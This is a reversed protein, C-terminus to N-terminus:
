EPHVNTIEGTQRNLYVRFKIGAWEASYQDMKAHKAKLYGKAAAHIAMDLMQEDTFKAPDYVTKPNSAPTKYMINGAADQMIKGSGDKKPIGYTIRTIGDIGTPQESLIIGDKDLLAKEFNKRNHGGTIGNKQNFRVVNKLHAPLNKDYSIGSPFLNNGQFANNVTTANNNINNGAAANKNGYSPANGTIGPVQLTKTDLAGVSKDPLSAKNWEVGEIRWTTNASNPHSFSGTGSPAKNNIAALNVYNNAIAPSKDTKTKEILPIEKAGTRVFASAGAALSSGIQEPDNNRVGYYIGKGGEYLRVMPVVMLVNDGARDMLEETGAGEQAARGMMSWNTSMFDTGFGWNVTAGLTDLAEAPIEWLGQAIGKGAGVVINGTFEMSQRMPDYCGACRAVDDAAKQGALLAAQTDGTEALVEKFKYEFAGAQNKMSEPNIGFDQLGQLQNNGVANEAARSAGYATASNGVAAGTGAAALGLINSITEKQEATLKSSDSTGYFGKALLPAGLEAAASTGASTAIDTGSGGNAATTLAALAAHAAIHGASGESGHAKAYQGIQYSVLPAATNAITGLASDTPTLGGKLMDLGVAIKELRSAGQEDGQARRKEAQKHLDRKIGQITGDFGQMVQATSTIDRTVKDADFGVSAAGSREKNNELTIGRNANKAAEAASEGTLQRQGADDHITLNATNVSGITVGEQSRQERGIGFTKSVDSDGVNIFREDQEQGLTKGGLVARVGLAISQGKYNSYNHIEERVLRDTSFHNKGEAEAKESSTIIGQIVATGRNHIQYGGDGAIAGSIGGVESQGRNALEDNQKISGTLAQIRSNDSEQVGRVADRHGSEVNVTKEHADVRTNQYDLDGSVGVGALVHGGLAFQRSQYDLTEQPVLIKLDRTNGSLSHGLIQAGNLETKGDGIDTHGTLGGVHSLRHLTRQEDSNGHAINGDAGVGYEFGRSGLQITPGIGFGDSHQESHMERRAEASKFNKEGEVRLVTIASGGLDSGTVNLTSGEGKGRINLYVGADSSLQSTQLLDERSKQWSSSHQTGLTLQANVLTRPDALAEKAAKTAEYGNWVANSAAMMKVVKSNNSEGLYGLNKLASRAASLLPINLRLTLGSQKYRSNMEQKQEGRMVDLDASQANLYVNGARAREAPSLALWQEKTLPGGARGAHVIAGQESYHGGADITVNGDIAGVLTPTHGKLDLTNDSSQSRSGLTLGIGGSGMLGVKHKSHREESHYTNEGAKLTIDGQRTQLLAGHEGVINSGVANIDGRDAVLAVSDGTIDSTKVQHAEWSEYDRTHSRSFLGGGKRNSSTVEKDIIEGHTVDIGKAGYLSVRNKGSNLKAANVTLKGATASVSLAGDGTTEVGKDEGHYRYHYNGGGQDDMKVDHTYEAGLNVKGGTIQTRSSKDGLDLQTAKLNTEKAGGLIVTSGTAYRKLQGSDEIQHASHYSRNAARDASGDIDSTQPQFNFTKGATASFYKGANITGGKGDFTDRAHVNGHDSTLTGRNSINQYQLSLSDRGGISGNNSLKGSGSFNISNAGITPRSTDLEDPQIRAYLQPVQRTVQRGDPLTFTRDVMLIMDQDLHKAQEATLSVGPAIQYRERFSNGAATLAAFQSADDHYGKLYRYGTSRAVMDAVLHYIYYRDGISRSFDTYPTGVTAGSGYAANNSLDGYRNPNATIATGTYPLRDRYEPLNQLIRLYAPDYTVLGRSAADPMGPMAPVPDVNALNLRYIGQTPLQPLNPTMVRYPVARGEKDIADLISSEHGGGGSGGPFPVGGTGGGQNPNGSIQGGENITGIPFRVFREDLIPPTYDIVETYPDDSKHHRIISEIKGNIAATYRRGEMNGGNIANKGAGGIRGAAIQGENYVDESNFTLTGGAQIKGPNRVIPREEIEALTYTYKNNNALPLKYERRRNTPIWETPLLLSSYFEVPTESVSIPEIRIESFNDVKKSNINVDGGADITGRGNIVHAAQGFALGNGDLENGINITGLSHITAGNENKITEAGIDVRNAGNVITNEGTNLFSKTSIAVHAGYIRGGNRNEIYEPAQVITKGASAILGENTIYSNSSLMLNGQFNSREQGPAIEIGTDSHINAWGGSYHQFNMTYKDQTQINMNGGSRVSEMKEAKKARLTLEEWSEIKGGSVSGVDAAINKGVIYGGSSDISTDKATIDLKGKSIIQGGRNNLKEGDSTLALSERGILHGNENNIATSQLHHATADISGGQNNLEPTNIHLTKGSHINGGENNLRATNLELDEETALVGQKNNIASGAKVNLTLKGKSAIHGQENDLEPTNITVDQDSVISGGRNNMQPTSVTVRTKGSLIGGNELTDAAVDTEGAAATGRNKLTNGRLNLKEKAHIDGSNDVSAANINADGASSIKGRNNLEATNLTFLSNTLLQGSNETKVSNFTFTNQSSIKGSNRTEETQIHLTDASGTEGSNNLQKGNLTINGAFLQGGQNLQTFGNYNFQEGAQIRGQNNLSGGSLTMNHGALLQGSGNNWNGPNYLFLDHNSSISGGSNDAQQSRITLNHNSNITGHKNNWMGTVNINGQKAIDIRGHSNDLKATNLQLTNTKLTGHSNNIDRSDFRMEQSRLEGHSNDLTAGNTLTLRAFEATQHNTFSNSATVSLMNNIEFVGRNNFQSRIKLTGETSPQENDTSSGPATSTTSSATSNAPKQTRITGYPNNATDYDATHINLTYPGRQTITGTESNNLSNASINLLDGSITASNNIDNGASLNLTNGAFLQGGNTIDNGASLSLGNGSRIQGSNAIDKGAQLSVSNNAGISGANNISGRAQLSLTNDSTISGGGTNNIKGASISLSDVGHIQGGHNNVEGKVQIPKARYLFLEGRANDLQSAKIDASEFTSSGDRNDLKGERLTFLNIAVNGHNEYDKSALDIKGGTTISGRNEIKEAVEIRGAAGKRTEENKNEAPQPKETHQEAQHDQLRAGDHNAFINSRITLTQDSSHHLTGDNKLGTTKIDLQNATIEGQNHLTGPLSLELADTQLKGAHHVGVGKETGILRIRNAYMGGLASSDVAFRVPNDAQKSSNEITGDAHLTNNGTILDIQSGEGHIAGNIKIQRALLTTYDHNQANLGGPAINIVGSESSHQVPKGQKIEVQGATYHVKGANIFGGNVMIGAPNAVIVDAKKGAIEVMGQLNAPNQSRVQNVILDAEGRALHPNGSVVGGTQTAADKRANNMIAGASDVDFQSYRNMSIGSEDPTQIDIQPLGNATKLVTPREHAAALDDETIVSQAWLSAPALGCALAICVPLLRLKPAPRSKNCNNNKGKGRGYEWVAIMQQLTTSFIVKYIGKNM